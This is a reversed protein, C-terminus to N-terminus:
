KNTKRMLIDFPNIKNLKRYAIEQMLGKLRIRNRYDLIKESRVLIKALFLFSILATM